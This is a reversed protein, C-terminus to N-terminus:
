IEVTLSDQVEFAGEDINYDMHVTVSRGDDNPTVTFDKLKISPIYAKIDQEIETRIEGYTTGDMPQFIKRILNSGFKPDRLRTGTPTFLLHTIDSRISDYKTMNLDVFFKYRNNEATFPFKISYFRKKAM